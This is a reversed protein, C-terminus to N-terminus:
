DVLISSISLDDYHTINKKRNVRNMSKLRRQIFLGNKNKLANCEKIVDLYSIDSKEDQIFSKVGDSLVSIFEVNKWQFFTQNYFDVTDVVVQKSERNMEGDEITYTDILVNQSKCQDVYTNNRNFDMQYSLYFPAGSLFTVDVIIQSGNQLQIFISGDGYMGAHTNGFKDAVAFLLTCDAFQYKLDFLQGATYATSTIHKIMAQNILLPSNSSLSAIYQKSWISDLLTKASHTIIRAGFDVQGCQDHSMSCGDSVIAYSIAENLKGSIAYDQCVDHSSGIEFYSDTNMANGKAFNNECKKLLKLLM